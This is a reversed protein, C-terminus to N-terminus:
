FMRRCQSSRCASSWEARPHSTTRDAVRVWACYGPCQGPSSACYRGFPLEFDCDCDCDYDCTAPGLCTLPVGNM